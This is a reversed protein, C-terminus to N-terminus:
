HKKKWSPCSQPSIIWTEQILILDIKFNHEKVLDLFTRLHVVKNMLSCINLSLIILNNSDRFLNLFGLEDFYNSNINLDRLIETIPIIRDPRFLDYNLNNNLNDVNVDADLGEFNNHLVM